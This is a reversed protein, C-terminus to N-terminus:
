RRLGNEAVPRTYVDCFVVMGTALSTYKRGVEFKTKTCEDFGPWWRPQQQMSGLHRKRWNTSRQKSEQAKNMSFVTRRHKARNKDLHRSVANHINGSAVCAPELQVNSHKKSSPSRPSLQNRRTSLSPSPFPPPSQSASFVPSPTGPSFFNAVSSATLSSRPTGVWLWRGDEDLSRRYSHILMTALSVNRTLQRSLKLAPASEKLVNTFYCDSVQFVRLPLFCFGWRWWRQKKHETSPRKAQLPM